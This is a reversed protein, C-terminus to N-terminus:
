KEKIFDISVTVVVLILVLNVNNWLWTHYPTATTVANPIQDM